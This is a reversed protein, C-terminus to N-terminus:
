WNDDRVYGYEILLDGALSKFVAKDKESMDRQWRAVATTKIPEIADPTQAFTTPDRFTSKSKSHALVADNWPEGLFELLKRVCDSPNAILEEYRVNYFRPNSWFPKSAILSDRWRAVCEDLPNWTNLPVIRGKVVKQRPHTRLSCAVDRGDRLVNVFKAQPFKEFLYPLHL